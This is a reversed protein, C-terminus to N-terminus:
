TLAINESIFLSNLLAFGFQKVALEKIKHSCLRVIKVPFYQICNIM